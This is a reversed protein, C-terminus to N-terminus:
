VTHIWQRQLSSRDAALSTVRLSVPTLMMNTGLTWTASPSSGYILRGVVIPAPLPGLSTVLLPISSEVTAPSFGSALDVTVRARAPVVITQRPPNAEAAFQEIQVRAMTEGPNAILFHASAFSGDGNIGGIRRVDGSITNVDNGRIAFLGRSLAPRQRLLVAWAQQFHRVGAIPVRV